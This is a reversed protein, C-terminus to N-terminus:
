APPATEGAQSDAAALQETLATIQADIADITLVEMRQPAELGLLKARREGNRRRAEEIRLLRDVAQLVPGADPIPADELQVVRGNSVTVHYENLITEVRTYLKSLRALEADLRLIEAERHVEVAAHQEAINMELVRCFDKSAANASSYGLEEYIEEYSRGDIRYQVLRTRREALEARRARAISGSM